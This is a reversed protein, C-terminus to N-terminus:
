MTGCRILRCCCNVKYLVHLISCILYSYFAPFCLLIRRWCFHPEWESRLTSFTRSSNLSAALTRFRTFAQFRNSPTRFHRFIFCFSILLSCAHELESHSFISPQLSEWDLLEPTSPTCAFRELFQLLQAPLSTSSPSSSFSQTQTACALVDDSAPPARLLERRSRALLEIQALHPSRARDAGRELRETCLLEWVKESTFWALNSCASFM